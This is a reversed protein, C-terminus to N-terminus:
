EKSLLKLGIQLTVRRKDTAQKATYTSDGLNDYGKFNEMSIKPNSKIKYM